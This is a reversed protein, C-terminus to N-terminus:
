ELKRIVGTECSVVSLGEIVQIPTAGVWLINVTAQFKIYKYVDHFTKKDSFALQLQLFPASCRGPLDPPIWTLFGRKILVWRRLGPNPKKTSHTNKYSGRTLGPDPVLPNKVQIGGIRTCDFNDSCFLTTCHLIWLSVHNMYNCGRMLRLEIMVSKLRLTNFFIRDPRHFSRNSSNLVFFNIWQITRFLLLESTSGKDRGSYDSSLSPQLYM